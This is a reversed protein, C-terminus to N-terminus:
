RTGASWKNLITVRVRGPTFRWSAQSINRMTAIGVGLTRCDEFDDVLRDIEELAPPDRKTEFWESSYSYMQFVWGPRVMLSYSLDGEPNHRYWNAVAEGSATLVLAQREEELGILAMLGELDRKVVADRPDLCDHRRMVGSLRHVNRDSLYRPTVVFRRVNGSRSDPPKQTTITLTM